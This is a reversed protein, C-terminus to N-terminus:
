ALAKELETEADAIPLQGSILRPLLTDRLSTLLTAQSHNNIISAIFQRTIKNYKELIDTSPVTVPFKMLDAGSVNAQASGHSQSEAFNKFEKQRVASFVFGLDRLGNKTMIRGVRQNLYSATESNPVLGTEGVYGTMGVLLDGASLKFRELGVVTQPSVYSCGDFDIHLPKVNGIKIVPHGVESWDSSKFAYGNQFTAVTSLTADAWGKPVLRLESKEFANPFLAATEADIGDPVRGDAKACVPDFDVFWSKFLAEALAELTKNTERLLTIRDDLPKLAEVILKQQPLTPLPIEVKGFEKGSVFPLTSSSNLSIMKRKIEKDSLVYSLYHNNIKENAQVRLVNWAIIFKDGVDVVASNGIDGINTFLIDGINPKCTDKLGGYTREDVYVVDSFDIRNNKINKSRIVPIGSDAYFVKETTTNVGQNRKKIVSDLPQTPFDQWESSM